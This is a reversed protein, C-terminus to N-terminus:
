RGKKPTFFLCISFLALAMTLWGAFRTTELSTGSWVYEVSKFSKVLEASTKSRSMQQLAPNEDLFLQAPPTLQWGSIMFKTEAPSLDYPFVFLFSWGFYLALSLMLAGIKFTRGAIRGVLGGLAFSILVIPLFIAGGLESFLAIVPGTLKEVATM